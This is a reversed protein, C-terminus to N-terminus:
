RCGGNMWALWAESQDEAGALTQGAAFDGYLFRDFNAYRKRMQELATARKACITRSARETRAKGQNAYIAQFYDAGTADIDKWFDVENWHFSVIAAHYMQRVASRSTSPLSYTDLLMAMLESPMFLEPTRSGDIVFAAHPLAEAGSGNSHVISHRAATRRALRESISLDWPEGRQDAMAGLAVVVSVAGLLCCVLHRRTEVQRCAEFM